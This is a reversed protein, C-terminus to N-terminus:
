KKQAKNLKDALRNVGDSLRIVELLDRGAKASQEVDVVDPLKFVPNETFSDIRKCMRVLADTLEGDAIEAPKKPEEKEGGPAEPLLHTKLRAARKNIEATKDAILKYDLPQNSQLHRVVRNRLLQINRFDDRMQEAAAEAARRDSPKASGVVETSRLEAERRQRERM